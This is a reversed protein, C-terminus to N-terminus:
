DEALKYEKYGVSGPAYVKKVVGNKMKVRPSKPPHIVWQGERLLHECYSALYSGLCHGLRQVKVEFELLEEPTFNKLIPKYLTANVAGTESMAWSWAGNELKFTLQVEPLVINSVRTIILPIAEFTDGGPQVVIVGALRWQVKKLWELDKEKLEGATVTIDYTDPTLIGDPDFLCMASDPWTIEEAPLSEANGSNRFLHAVPHMEKLGATMERCVYLTNKNAECTSIFNDLLTTRM